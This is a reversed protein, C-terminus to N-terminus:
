NNQTDKMSLTTMSMSPSNLSIGSSLMLSGSGSSNASPLSSPMCSRAVSEFLKEIEPACKTFPQKWFEYRPNKILEIFTILLGWPHPRHVILRELLVRTIQERIFEEKAQLFLFLLVCSFYHTHNNPYRLQNAIANLVYYRGEADFQSIMAEFIDMCAHDPFPTAAAGSKSHAQLHAIGSTGVYLVVSNILPVNYVTGTRKIITQYELPSLHRTSYVLSSLFTSLFSVPERLKLYQDLPIQLTTRHQSLALTIDSSIRPPQTIEPLLDVKLNPTFPDPLRMNRPFASLILNRMQICTPPIVDCFSFHFECLFEPFDHLLVLLLRLTSKYVLRISDTLEANRLYPQLFRFLDVLLRAFMVSCVATKSILLKSMFMRHSILEIWAFCFPPVRSPRLLHFCNGFATLVDLNNSDLLPDPTNLDQLLNSFLRLYPRQNFTFKNSDFDRRLVSAGATLFSHLLRIRAANPNTNTGTSPQELVKVLLILLKCVADIATYTIPQSANSENSVANVSNAASEIGLQILIRFFRSTSEPTALVRHQHLLTLYQGYTKDPASGQLCITMWDDLLFIVRQRLGAAEPEEPERDLSDSEEEFVSLFANKMEIGMASPVTNNTSLNELANGVVGHGLTTSISGPAAAVNLLSPQRLNPDLLKGDNAERAARDQAERENALAAHRVDDLLMNIGDTLLKHRSMQSFKTLADLTNTLEIPLLIPRKIVVRRILAFVFDLHPHIQITTMSQPNQANGVASPPISANAVQQVHQSPPLSSVALVLRSLFLDVEAPNLLRARLLAATIPMIFKRDDESYLLWSTLEQVVKPCVHRICKLVQTHVDIQLLSTRNERDYLRKFVKHAFTIAILQAHYAVEDRASQSLLTAIMRLLVQIEHNEGIAPQSIGSQGSAPALSHLPISKHNPFRVVAQELNALYTVLKELTQQSSLSPPLAAGAQPQPSPSSAAPTASATPQAAGVAVTSGGPTRSVSSNAISSTQLPQSSTPTLATATAAHQYHQRIRTFDDYVRLQSATLGSPKPRLPEPLSSPYRGNAVISMDMYPQGAERSRRRVNYLPALAEDIERIAREAAAKEILACGLELNDASIQVCAQEILQREANQGSNAELLSALHNNISVRLPEKCTVLALSSTLNQVMAHAAARMKNEDSEMAFDKIILERTTVCAITVSREVVPSIIERIARDIATPVFASLHPLVNFLAISSAIQVFSPLNPLIMSSDSSFSSPTSSSATSPTGAIGTSRSVGSISDVTEDENLSQAPALRNSSQAPQPISPLATGSLAGPPRRFDQTNHRDKLLQTAKVEKMNIQLNNFLVEIEFKLNLKLGPLEFIERLL